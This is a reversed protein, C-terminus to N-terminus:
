RQPVERGRRAMATAGADVRAGPRLGHGASRVGATTNAGTADPAAERRVLLRASNASRKLAAFLWDRFSLIEQRPASANARVLFYSVDLPLVTKFPRVLRGAALDREALVLRGLVVGTGDIAAQMALEALSFKTGRQASVDKAGALHL